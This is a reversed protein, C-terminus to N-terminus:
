CYLIYSIKTGTPVTSEMKAQLVIQSEDKNDIVRRMDLVPESVDCYDVMVKSAAKIALSHSKAVVIGLPQGHYLVKGDCLVKLLFITPNAKNKCFILYSFAILLNM